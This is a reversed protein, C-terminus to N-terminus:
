GSESVPVDHGELAARTRRHRDRFMGEFGVKALPGLADGVAGFPLRYRVTDILVTEDGDALFTHTHEWKRFPGERMEDVFVADDDSRRRDTIVSVWRQRPVVGLPGISMRIRTGAALEEPEREGDPGRVGEIRLHMWDPTLRELGATTAHFEWVEEFPAAIRTRRRYTPM